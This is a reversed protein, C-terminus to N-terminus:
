CFTGAFIHKSTASYRSLVLSQYMALFAGLNVLAHIQQLSDVDCVGKHAEANALVRRYEEVSRAKRGALIHLGALGNCAGLLCRQADQAEDRDKAALNALVEDLTQPAKAKNATGGAVSPHCCTQLVASAHTM